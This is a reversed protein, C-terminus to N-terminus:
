RTMTRLAAPVRPSEDRGRRWRRPRPTVCRESSHCELLFKLVVKKRCLDKETSLRHDDLVVKRCSKYTVDAEIRRLDVKAVRCEEVSRLGKAGLPSTLVSLDYSERRSRGSDRSEDRHVSM